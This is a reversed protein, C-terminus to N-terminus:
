RAEPMWGPPLPPPPPASRWNVFCGIGIAFVAVFLGAIIKWRLSPSGDRPKTPDPM